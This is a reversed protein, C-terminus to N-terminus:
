YWVCDYVGFDLYESIDPTNGTLQEEPTCLTKPNWMRNLLKVERKVFFFWLQLPVHKQIIM